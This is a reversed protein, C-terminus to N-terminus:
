TDTRISIRIPFKQTGSETNTVFRSAFFDFRRQTFQKYKASFLFFLFIFKGSKRAKQHKGCIFSINKGFIAQCKQIEVEYYAPKWTSVNEWGILNRSLLIFLQFFKRPLIAVNNIFAAWWIHNKICILFRELLSICVTSNPIIWVKVFDIHM